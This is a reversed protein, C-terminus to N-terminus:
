ECPTEEGGKHFVASEGESLIAGTVMCGMMGDFTADDTLYIHVTDGDVEIREVDDGIASELAGAKTELGVSDMADGLEEGGIADVIDSPDGTGGTVADAGAEDGGGGGGAGDDGEAAAPPTTARDDSGGDDGCGTVLAATLVLALLASRRHAM